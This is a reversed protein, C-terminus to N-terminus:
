KSSNILFKITVDIVETISIENINANFVHNGNVTVRESRVRSKEENSRKHYRIFLNGYVPLVATDEDSNIVM